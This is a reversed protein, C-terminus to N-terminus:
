SWGKSVQMFFIVRNFPVLVVGAPDVKTEKLPGNVLQDLGQTTGWRRINKCGDIRLMQGEISCDGVNVFGNDIVVIQMGLHKKM